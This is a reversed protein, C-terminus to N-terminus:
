YAETGKFLASLDLSPVKTKSALSVYTTALATKAAGLVTSVSGVAEALESPELGKVIRNWVTEELINIATLVEYVQFGANFREKAAAQIYELLPILNKNKISLSMLSFLKNLRERNIELGSEKYRRLPTRELSATADDIIEAEHKDLLEIFSM